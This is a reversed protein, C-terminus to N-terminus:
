KNFWIVYLYEASGVNQCDVKASRDMEDCFGYYGSGDDNTFVGRKCAEKFEWVTFVDADDPIPYM